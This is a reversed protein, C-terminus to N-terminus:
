SKNKRNQSFSRLIVFGVGVILLVFALVILIKIAFTIFGIFAIVQKLLTIVLAIIVMISGWKGAAKIWIPM